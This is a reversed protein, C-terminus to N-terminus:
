NPIKKEGTPVTSQCMHFVMLNVLICFLQHIFAAAQSTQRRGNELEGKESKGCLLLLGLAFLGAYWHNM